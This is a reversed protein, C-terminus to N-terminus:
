AATNLAFTEEKSFDIASIPEENGKVLIMKFSGKACDLKYITTQNNFQEMRYSHIKGLKNKVFKLLHKWRKPTILEAESKNCIIVSSGISLRNYYMAIKEAATQYRSKVKNEAAAIITAMLAIPLTIYVKNQPAKM